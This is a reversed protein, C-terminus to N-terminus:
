WVDVAVVVLGWWWGFGVFKEEVCDVVGEKCGILGVFWAKYGCDCVFGVKERVVNGVAVCLWHSASAYV